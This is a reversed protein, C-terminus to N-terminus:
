FFQKVSQHTKFLMCYNKFKQSIFIYKKNSVFASPTEYARYCKTQCFGLIIKDFEITELLFSLVMNQGSRKYVM